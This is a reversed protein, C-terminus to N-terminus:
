YIVLLSYFRFPESSLTYCESDSPKHVKDLKRLELYSSNQIISLDMFGPIRLWSHAHLYNKVKWFEYMSKIDNYNVCNMNVNERCSITGAAGVM